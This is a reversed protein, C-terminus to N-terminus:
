KDWCGPPVVDASDNTEEVEDKGARSLVMAAAKDEGLAAFTKAVAVRGSQSQSKEAAVMARLLLTHASSYPGRATELQKIGCAAALLGAWDDRWVAFKGAKLYLHKADHLDGKGWAEDARALIPKWDPIERGSFGCQTWTLAALVPFVALSAPYAVACWSKGRLNQRSHTQAISPTGSENNENM